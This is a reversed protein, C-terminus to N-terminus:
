GIVPFVDRLWTGLIKLTLIKRWNKRFLDAEDDSIIARWKELFEETAARFLLACKRFGDLLWLVTEWIHSRSFMEHSYAARFFLQIHLNILPFFHLFSFIFAIEQLFLWLFLCISSITPPKSVRPLLPLIQIKYTM